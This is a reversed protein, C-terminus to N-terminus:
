RSRIFNNDILAAVSFRICEDCINIRLAKNNELDQLAETSYYTAVTDRDLVYEDESSDSM